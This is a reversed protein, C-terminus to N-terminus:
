LKVRQRVRWGNRNLQGTARRSATGTLVLDAAPRPRLSRRAKMMATLIAATRPTWALYDAPMLVVLRGGRVRVAPVDGLPVFTRVPRVRAHYAAILAARRRAAFAADESEIGAAYAVYVGRDKAGDLSKLADVIITKDTPTLSANAL